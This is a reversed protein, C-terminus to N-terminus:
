YWAKYIHQWKELSYFSALLKQRLSIDSSNQCVTSQFTLYINFMIQPQFDYLELCLWAQDRIKLHKNFFM